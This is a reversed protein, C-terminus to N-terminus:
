ATAQTHKAAEEARYQEEIGAAIDALLADATALAIRHGLAADFAKGAVGLPPVYTGSLELISTRYTEDYRVCLTGSFSPYIGGGEPVWTVSWPEDFHMPDTGFGYHVVVEKSVSASRIPVTLRLPLEEGTSASHRLKHDLYARARTYPAHVYHIREITTM